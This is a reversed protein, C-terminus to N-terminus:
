LLAIQKDEVAPKVGCSWGHTDTMVPRIETGSFIAPSVM